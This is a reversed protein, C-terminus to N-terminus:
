EWLGVGMCFQSGNKFFVVHANKPDFSIGRGFVRFKVYPNGNGYAEVRDIRFDLNSEYPNSIIAKRWLPTNSKSYHLKVKLTYRTSLYPRKLYGFVSV